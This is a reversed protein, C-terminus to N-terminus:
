GRLSLVIGCFLTVFDRNVARLGELVYRGAISLNLRAFAEFDHTVTWYREYPAFKGHGRVSLSEPLVMLAGGDQRHGPCKGVGRNRWLRVQIDGFHPPLATWQNDVNSYAVTFRSEGARYFM